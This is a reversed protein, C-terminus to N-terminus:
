PVIIFDEIMILDKINENEIELITLFSKCKKCEIIFKNLNSKTNKEM